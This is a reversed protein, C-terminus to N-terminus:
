GVAPSLTSGLCHSPPNPAGGAARQGVEAAEDKYKQRSEKLKEYRDRNNSLEWRCPGVCRVRERRPLNIPCSSM